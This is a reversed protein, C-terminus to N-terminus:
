WLEVNIDTLRLQSESSVVNFMSSDMSHRLPINIMTEGVM